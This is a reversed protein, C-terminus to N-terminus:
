DSAQVTGGNRVGNVRQSLQMDTSDASTTLQPTMVQTITSPADNEPNDWPQRKGSAFINYFTACVIYVAASIFFVNRWAAM